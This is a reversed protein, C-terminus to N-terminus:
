STGWWKGGLDLVRLELVAGTLISILVCFIQLIRVM